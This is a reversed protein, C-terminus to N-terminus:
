WPWDFGLTKKLAQKGREQWGAVKMREVSRHYNRERQTMIKVAMSWSRKCAIDPDLSSVYRSEDRIRYEMAEPVGFLKIYDAAGILKKEYSVDDIAHPIGGPLRMTADGLGNFHIMNMSNAIEAEAAAKAALPATGMFGFFTRRTPRM